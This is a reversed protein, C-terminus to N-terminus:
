CVASFMSVLACVLSHPMSPMRTLPWKAGTDDFCFKEFLEKSSMNLFLLFIAMM